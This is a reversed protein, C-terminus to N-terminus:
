RAAPQGPSATHQHEAPSDGDGRRQKRQDEADPAPIGPALALGGDGLGFVQFGLAVGVALGDGVEGGGLQSVAYGFARINGASAGIRKSAFYAEDLKRGIRDMAVGVAVGVVAMNKALNNLGKELQTLNEGWKKMQSEDVKFGLKVLYERLINTDAM